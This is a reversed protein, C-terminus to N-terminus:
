IKLLSLLKRLCDGFTRQIFLVLITDYQKTISYKETKAMSIIEGNGLEQVVTKAVKLSNGTGSFYFVINEM